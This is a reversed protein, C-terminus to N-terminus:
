KIGCHVMEHEEVGSPGDMYVPRSFGCHPLWYWHGVLGPSLEPAGEECGSEYLVTLM